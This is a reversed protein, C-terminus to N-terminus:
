LSVYTTLQVTICVYHTRCHYMRLSNMKQRLYKISYFAKTRKYLHVWDRQRAQIYMLLVAM